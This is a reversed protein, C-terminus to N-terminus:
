ARVEPLAAAIDELFDYRHGRAIREALARGVSREILYGVACINGGDDIFVPSRWPLAENRPTTGRAIYDDLYGLLEARRAALEPRTPPQQALRDRVYRLHLRMRLAESDASTPSRGVEAVFSGDGLHHNAGDRFGRKAAGPPLALVTTAPAILVLMVVLILVQALGRRRMGSLSRARRTIRARAPQCAAAPAVNAAESASM